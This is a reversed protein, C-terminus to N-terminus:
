AGYTSRRSDAQIRYAFGASAIVDCRGIRFVAPFYSLVQGDIHAESPVVILWEVLCFVVPAEEVRIQYVRDGSCGPQHLKGAVVAAGTDTAVALCRYVREPLVESRSNAQVVS